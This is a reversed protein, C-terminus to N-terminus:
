AATAATPSPSFRTMRDRTGGAAFDSGCPILRQAAGVGALGTATISQRSIVSIGGGRTAGRRFEQHRGSLRTGPMQQCSHLLRLGM